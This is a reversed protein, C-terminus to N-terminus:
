AEVRTTTARIVAATKPAKTHRGPVVIQGNLTLGLSVLRRPLLDVAQELPVTELGRRALEAIFEDHV